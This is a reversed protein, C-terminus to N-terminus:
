ISAALLMGEIEGMRSNSIQPGHINSKIVMHSVVGCSLSDITAVVIRLVQGCVLQGM